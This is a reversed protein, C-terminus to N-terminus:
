PFPRQEVPSFARSQDFGPDGDLVLGPGLDGADGFAIGGARSTMHVAHLSTFSLATAFAIGATLHSEDARSPSQVFCGDAAHILPLEFRKHGMAKRGLFRHIHDHLPYQFSAIQRTGFVQIFLTFSLSQLFRASNYLIVTLLRAYLQVVHAHSCFPSALRM